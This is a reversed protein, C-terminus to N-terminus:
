KLICQDFKVQEFLEDYGLCRGKLVISDQLGVNIKASFSCYVVNNLVVTSDNFESVRGNIEIVKNLYDAQSTEYDTKFNEQIQIASLTADPTESAVDRHGKYMYLYFGIGLILVVLLAGLIIKRM